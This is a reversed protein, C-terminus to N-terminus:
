ASDPEPPWDAYHALLQAGHVRRECPHSRGCHCCCGSLDRRHTALLHAGYGAQAKAYRLFDAAPIPADM